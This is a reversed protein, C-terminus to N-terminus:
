DLFRISERLGMGALHEKFVSPPLCKTLPDVLMDKTKIHELSIIHDQIKDNVVYYRIEKANSSKNNHVYFVTPKNDCYIKLPRSIFDVVKLDLLFKKLWM